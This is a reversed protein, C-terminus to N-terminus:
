SHAGEKHHVHPPRQTTLNRRAKRKRVEQGIRRYFWRRRVPPPATSRLLDKLTHSFTQPKM